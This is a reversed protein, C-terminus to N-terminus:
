EHNGKNQAAGVAGHPFFLLFALSELPKPARNAALALWRVSCLERAPGPHFFRQRTRGRTLGPLRDALERWTERPRYAAETAAPGNPQGWAPLGDPM